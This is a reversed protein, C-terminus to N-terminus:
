RPNPGSKAPETRAFQEEVAEFTLMAGNADLRTVAGRETKQNRSAWQVFLFLIIGWLYFGGGLKMIVGAAQQDQIITVGWLRYPGREYARYLPNEAVTLFAAPITPIISMAFLYAMQTPLALRQERLPGCVPNWMLFASLVLAAHLVYHLPGIKVSANVLPAAHTLVLLGNYL